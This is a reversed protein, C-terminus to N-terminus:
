RCWSCFWIPCDGTRACGNCVTIYYADCRKTACCEGDESRAASPSADKSEGTASADAASVVGQVHARSSKTAVTASNGLAVLLQSEHAILWGEATMRDIRVAVLVPSAVGRAGPPLQDAEPSQAKLTYRRLPNKSLDSFTVTTEANADVRAQFVDRGFGSVSLDLALEFRTPKRARVQNAAAGRHALLGLLLTSLVIRRAPFRSSVGVLHKKWATM